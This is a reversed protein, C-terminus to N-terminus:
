ICIGPLSDVAKLNNITATIKENTAIDNDSNNTLFSCLRLYFYFSFCFAM